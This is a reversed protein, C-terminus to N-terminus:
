RTAHTAGFPGLRWLWKILRWIPVWFLFAWAVLGMFPIINRPFISAPIVAMAAVPLTCITILAGPELWRRNPRSLPFAGLVFWQVAIAIALIALIVLESKHTKGVQTQVLRDLPTPSNCPEHGGSIIGVPIDAFSLIAQGPSIPGYCWRWGECPNFYTGMGPDPSPLSVPRNRDTRIYRWFQSENWVLVSGAALVHIGAFLIGRRWNMLVLMTRMIRQRLSQICLPESREQLSM